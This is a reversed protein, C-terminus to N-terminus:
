LGCVCLWVCLRLLCLLLLLRSCVARLCMALHTHLHTHAVFLHEALVVVQHEVRLRRSSMQVTQLTDTHTHTHTLSHNPHTLTLTLSQTHTHTDTQAHKNKTQKVSLFLANKCRKQHPTSHTEDFLELHREIDDFIQFQKLIVCCVCVFIVSVYVRM